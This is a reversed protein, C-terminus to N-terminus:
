PRVALGYPRALAAVFASLLPLQSDIEFIILIVKCDFSYQHYLHRSMNGDSLQNTPTSTILCEVDHRLAVVVLIVGRVM